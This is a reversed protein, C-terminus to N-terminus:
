VNSCNCKAEPLACPFIHMLLTLTCLLACGFNKLQPLSGGVQRHMDQRQEEAREGCQKACWSSDFLKTHYIGCTSPFSFKICLLILLTLSIPSQFPSVPHQHSACAIHSAAPGPSFFFGSTPLCFHNFRVPPM